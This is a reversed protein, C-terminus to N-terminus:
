ITDKKPKDMTFVLNNFKPVFNPDRSYELNQCGVVGIQEPAKIRLYSSGSHKLEFENDYDDHKDVYFQGTDSDYEVNFRYIM